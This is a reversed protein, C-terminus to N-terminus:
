LSSNTSAHQKQQWQWDRGGAFHTPDPQDSTSNPDTVIVTRMECNNFDRRFDAAAEPAEPHVFASLTHWIFGCHSVVAIRSEPRCLCCMHNIRKHQCAIQGGYVLDPQYAM